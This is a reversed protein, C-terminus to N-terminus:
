HYISHNSVSTLWKCTHLIADMRHTEVSTSALLNSMCTVKVFCRPQHPTILHLAEDSMM